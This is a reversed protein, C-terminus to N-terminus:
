RSVSDYAKQFEMYLIWSYSIYQGMISGNKRWHRIFASCKIFVQNKIDANV